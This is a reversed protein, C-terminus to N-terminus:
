QHGAGRGGRDASPSPSRAWSRLAFASHAALTAVVIAGGVLGLNTPREGIVLWVWFPGLVTELLMLLGVEPAPLYRPGITILAFSIPVVVLGMLLLYLVQQQDLVIAPAMFLALAGVLLGSVAMAPIMNVARAHRLVVFDAGMTIAVGLAALDGPLTGQGIGDAALLAIGCLAALIALWTRLAIAERLFIRSGLAAFLPASAVIILTNAVSTHNLAFIFLVTGLSFLLAIALGRRGIALLKAPAGRRYWLLILLTLGLAQLFGRWILMNWTDIGILRVLLSDPTLILVGLSVIARGKAHTSRDDM